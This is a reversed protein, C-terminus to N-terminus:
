PPAARGGGHRRPIGHLRTGTGGRGRRPFEASGPQLVAAAAVHINRPSVRSLIPAREAHFIAVARGSRRRPTAVVAERCM